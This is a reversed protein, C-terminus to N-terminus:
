SLIQLVVGSLNIERYALLAGPKGRKSDHKDHISVCIGISKLRCLDDFNKSFYRFSCRKQFWNASYFFNYQYQRLFILRSCRRAKLRDGGSAIQCACSSCSEFLSILLRIVCDTLQLCLDRSSTSRSGDCIHKSPSEATRTRDSLIGLAHCRM